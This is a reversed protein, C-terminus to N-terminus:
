ELLVGLEKGLVVQRFDAGAFPAPDEAGQGMKGGFAGTPFVEVAAVPGGEESPARLKGFAAPMPIAQGRLVPNPEQEASGLKRVSAVLPAFDAGPVPPENEFQFGCEEVLAFHFGTPMAVFPRAQPNRGHTRAVGIGPQGPGQGFFVAPPGADAAFHPGAQQAVVGCEGVFAVPGFEGGPIPEVEVVFGVGGGEAGVAGFLDEGVPALATEGELAACSSGRRCGGRGRRCAGRGTGVRPLWGM